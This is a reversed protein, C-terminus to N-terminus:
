FSVLGSVHRSVHVFSYFFSFSFSSFTGSMVEAVLGDVPVQALPRAAAPRRTSALRSNTAGVASSMQYTHYYLTRTECNHKGALIYRRLVAKRAESSDALALETLYIQKVRLRVDHASQAKASLARKMQHTQQLRSSLGNIYLLVGTVATCRKCCYVMCYM